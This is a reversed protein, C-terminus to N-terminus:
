SKLDEVKEYRQGVFVEQKSFKQYGWQMHNLGGWDFIRPVGIFQLDDLFSKQVGKKQLVSAAKDKAELM